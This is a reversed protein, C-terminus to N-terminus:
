FMLKDCTAVTGSWTFGLDRLAADIDKREECCNKKHIKACDLSVSQYIWAGMGHALRHSAHELRHNIIMDNCFPNPGTLTIKVGYKELMNLLLDIQIEEHPNDLNNVRTANHCRLCYILKEVVIKFM